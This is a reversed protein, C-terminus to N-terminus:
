RHVFFYDKVFGVERGQGRRFGRRTESENREKKMKRFVPFTCLCSRIKSSPVPPSLLGSFLIEIV